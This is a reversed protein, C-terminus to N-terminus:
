DCIFTRILFSRYLSISTDFERHTLPLICGTQHYGIMGSIDPNCSTTGRQWLDRVTVHAAGDIEKLMPEFHTFFDEREIHKPSVCLIDIDSGPGHVSAILGSLLNKEAPM